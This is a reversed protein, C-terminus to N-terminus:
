DRRSEPLGNVVQKVEVTEPFGISFSHMPGMLQMETDMWQERAERENAAWFRVTVPLLLVVDYFGADCDPIPHVVFLSHKDEM